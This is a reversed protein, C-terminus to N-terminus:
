INKQIIWSMFDFIELSKREFSDHDTLLKIEEYFNTLLVSRSQEDTEKSLKQLFRIAIKETKFLLNRKAMYYKASKILYPIFRYNGLEYHIIIKMLLAFSYIDQRVDPSFDNIIVDLANEATELNKSFFAVYAMRYYSTVLLTDSIFDRYKNLGKEFSPLISFAAEWDKQNIYHDLEYSFSFIFVHSEAPRKQRKFSKSISRFDKLHNLFNEPELIKQIALIRTCFVLYNLPENKKIFDYEDVLAVLKQNAKLEKEWDDNIFHVNSMIEWYHFKMRFGNNEHDFNKLIAQEMFAQLLELDQESRIKSIKNRLLIGEYYVKILANLAAQKDWYYQQEQICDLAEELRRLVKLIRSKLHFLNILDAFAELKKALKITRDTQFLAQEFLQKDFLVIANSYAQSLQLSLIGQNHYETLGDLIADYLQNRDAALYDATYGAEDYAIKTDVESFEKNANLADFLISLKNSDKNRFKILNLKLFKKEVATMSHILKHLKLEKKM